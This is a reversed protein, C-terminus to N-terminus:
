KKISKVFNGDSITHGCTTCYKDGTSTGHLREVELILHECEKDGKRKKWQLRLEENTVHRPNTDVAVDVTKDIM